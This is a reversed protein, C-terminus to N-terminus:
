REDRHANWPALEYSFPGSADSEIGPLDTARRGDAISPVERPSHHGVRQSLVGCRRKREDSTM